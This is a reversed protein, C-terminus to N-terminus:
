NVGYNRTSVVIQRVQNDIGLSGDKHAVNMTIVITKKGQADEIGKEFSLYKLEINESMGDLIVTKTSDKKCVYLKGDSGTCTTWYYVKDSGIECSATQDTGECTGVFSANRFDKEIKTLINNQEERVQSRAFAKRSIDLSVFLVNTLMIILISVIALTALIELLSYASLNRNKISNAKKM